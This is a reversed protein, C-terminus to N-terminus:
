EVITLVNEFVYSYGEASISLSYDGPPANYPVHFTFSEHDTDWPVFEEEWPEADPMPIDEYHIRYYEGDVECFLSAEIFVSGLGMYRIRQISINTVYGTIHVFEGRQYTQTGDRLMYTFAIERDYGRGETVVPTDDGKENEERPEKTCSFCSFCLTLALALLLLLIKKM